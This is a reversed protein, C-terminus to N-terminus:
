GDARDIERRLRRRIEYQGRPFSSRRYLRRRRRPRPAIAILVDVSRTSRSAPTAEVYLIAVRDDIAAGALGGIAEADVDGAQRDQPSARGRAAAPPHPASPKGERERGVRHRDASRGAPRHAAEQGHAPQLGPGARHDEGHHDPRQDAPVGRRLLLDHRRRLPRLLRHLNRRQIAKLPEGPASITRTRATRKKLQFQHYEIAVGRLEAEGVGLRRALEEAGLNGGAPGQAAKSALKKFFGFMKSFSSFAPVFRFDSTGANGGQWSQSDQVRESGTRHSGASSADAQAQMQRRWPLVPMMSRSGAGTLRRRLSSRRPRRPYRPARMRRQYKRWAREIM